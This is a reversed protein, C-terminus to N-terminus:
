RIFEYWTAYWKYEILDIAPQTNHISMDYYFKCLEKLSDLKKNTTNGDIQFLSWFTWNYIKVDDSYLKDDFKELKQKQYNLQLNKKCWGTFKDNM